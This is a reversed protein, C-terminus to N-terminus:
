YIHQLRKINSKENKINYALQKSTYHLNCKIPSFSYKIITPGFFLQINNDKELTVNLQM